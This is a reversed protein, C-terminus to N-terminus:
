LHPFSINFSSVLNKRVLDAYRFMIQQRTLVTTQSWTKFAQACLDVCAQMEAQTSVPVRTVGENTAQTYVSPIIAQVSLIMTLFFDLIVLTHDAVHRWQESVKYTNSYVLRLFFFYDSLFGKVLNRPKLTWQLFNIWKELHSFGFYSWAALNRLLFLKINICYLGLASISQPRCKEWACLSATVWQRVLKQWM